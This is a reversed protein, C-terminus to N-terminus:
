EVLTCRMPAETNYRRPSTLRRDLLGARDLCPSPVKDAAPLPTMDTVVVTVSTVTSFIIFSHAIVSPMSSLIRSRRVRQGIVCWKVTCQGFFQSLIFWNQVQHLQFLNPIATSVFHLEYKSEKRNSTSESPGLDDSFDPRRCTAIKSGTRM